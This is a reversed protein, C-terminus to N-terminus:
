WLKVIENLQFRNRAYPYKHVIRGRTLNETISHKIFLKVKWTMNCNLIINETYINTSICGNEAEVCGIFEMLGMIDCM